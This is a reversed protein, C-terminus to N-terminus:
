NTLDLNFPSKIVLTPTLSSVDFRLWVDLRIEVMPNSFEEGERMLDILTSPRVWKKPQENMKQLALSLDLKLLPLMQLTPCADWPLLSARTELCLVVNFTTRVIRIELPWVVM